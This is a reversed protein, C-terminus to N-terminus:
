PYCSVHEVRIWIASPPDIQCRQRVRCQHGLGRSMSQLEHLLGIARGGFHQKVVQTVFFRQYAEIVALM